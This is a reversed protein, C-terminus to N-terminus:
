VARGMHFSHGCMGFLSGVLIVFIASVRLGIRGDFDNEPACAPIGAAENVTSGTASGNVAAAVQRGVLYALHQLDSMSREGEVRLAVSTTPAPRVSLALVLVTHVATVLALGPRNRLSRM